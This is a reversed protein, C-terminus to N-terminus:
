VKDCQKTGRCKPRIQNEPKQNWYLGGPRACLCYMNDTYLCPARTSHITSSSYGTSRRKDDENYSLWFRDYQAHTSSPGPAPYIRRFLGLRADEEQMIAVAEAEAEGVCESGSRRLREAGREACLELKHESAFREIRRWLEPTVLAPAPVSSECVGDSGKAQGGGALTRSLM